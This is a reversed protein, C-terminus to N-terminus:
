AARRAEVLGRLFDIEARQADIRAELSAIRANSLDLEHEKDSLDRELKRRGVIEDSRTADVVDILGLAILDHVAILVEGDDSMSSNPLRGDRGYRRMTDYSKGTLEAAEKRTLYNM